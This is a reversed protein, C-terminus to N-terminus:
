LFYIRFQRDHGYEIRDIIGRWFTRKEGNTFTGYLEWLDASLLQKLAGADQERREATTGSLKDMDALLRERDAKYATMDILENIYLEKLRELKREIKKKQESIQITKDESKEIEYKLILDKVMPRIHEILYREVTNEAITKSNTCKSPKQNYYRACRYQHEETRCRGRIRRRTNGGMTGGCDACRLLGSFIYVHKQSSKVNMKLKRQVDDWLDSSVIPPCYDKIGTYHEGKYLPSMLMRKFAPKSSPMGYSGGFVRMTENISGCLAYMEFAKRVYEANEDHELHKGVIHFGAPHAGSIVEKQSLKYAQVQKIRQSTNEAEFQAISMMQNVILRGQPTTTDYIPEWIATWGVNHADLVAQTATYHRVSRFFRDLKTFIIIDIKGAEVDSLMRQLEDRQSYKTGSIGDDVYEGAIIMGHDKAYKRLADRQAPISDGEKAQIDSSVRLYLAANIM